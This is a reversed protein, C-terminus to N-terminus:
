FRYGIEVGTQDSSFTYDALDSSNRTHQYFIGITGRQLFSTSLRVNYSYSTDERTVVITDTGPGVVILSTVGYCQSRFVAVPELDGTQAVKSKGSWIHVISSKICQFRYEVM